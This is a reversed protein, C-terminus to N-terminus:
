VLVSELKERLFSSIAYEGKFTGWYETWIATGWFVDGFRQYILM